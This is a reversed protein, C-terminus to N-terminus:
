PPKHTQLGLAGKVDSLSALVVCLGGEVTRLVGCPPEDRGNLTQTSFALSVSVSFSLFLLSLSAGGVGM